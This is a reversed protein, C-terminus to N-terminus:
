ESLATIKKADKRSVYARWKPNLYYIPVGLLFLAGFIGALVGLAWRYGHEHVMPTLGYTAGFSILNKTGVVVVIAPGPNKPWAEAAFTTSVILVVVFVIQFLTWGMFPGWWTSGGGATFGYLLLAAVGLIGPFILMLLRHEPKHIGHNRKAMWIVFKDGTWGAYAMGLFGGIIGGINILGVNAASWGYIDVLVTNYTLSIGITCGLTISSILVSFLIGPSTFSEVMHVWAMIIIRGANPSAGSWPKLMQRYTKKSSLTTTTRIHQVDQLRSQAEQDSLVHTVGYIDTFVVQGDLSAVPRAFRTEFAGFVVLIFGVGVAAVYVWYYIRWSVAAQYSSALGLVSSFVNQTAWYYGFLKSREHLFSIDTLMLPLLQQQM